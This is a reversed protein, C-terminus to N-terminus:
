SHSFTESTHRTIVVERFCSTQHSNCRVLWRSFTPKFWPSRIRLQVLHWRFTTQSFVLKSVSTPGITVCDTRVWVRWWLEDIGEQVFSFLWLLRTISIRQSSEKWPIWNSSTLLFSKGESFAHERRSSFLFFFRTVLNTVFYSNILGTSNCTAWIGWLSTCLFVFIYPNIFVANLFNCGAGWFSSIVISLLTTHKEEVERGKDASREIKEDSPTIKIGKPTTFEFRMHTLHHLTSVRNEYMWM